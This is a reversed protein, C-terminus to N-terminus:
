QLGSANKRRQFEEEIEKDLHELPKYYTHVIQAGALMTVMSTVVFRIYRSFSVGAPM